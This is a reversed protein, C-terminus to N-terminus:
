VLIRINYPQVDFFHTTPIKGSVFSNLATGVFQSIFVTILSRTLILQLHGGDGIITVLSVIFIATSGDGSHGIYEIRNASLPLSYQLYKGLKIICVIYLM